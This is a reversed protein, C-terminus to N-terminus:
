KVIATSEREAVVFGGSGFQPHVAFPRLEGIRKAVDTTIIVIAAITVVIVDGVRSTSGWYKLQM